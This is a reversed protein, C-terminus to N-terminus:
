ASSSKEFLANFLAQVATSLNGQDQMMDNVFTSLTAPKNVSATLDNQTKLVQIMTQEYATSSDLRASCATRDAVWQKRVQHERYLRLSLAPDYTTTPGQGTAGKLNSTSKSPNSKSSKSASERVAIKEDTLAQLTAIYFNDTALCEATVVTGYGYNVARLTAVAQPFPTAVAELFTAIQPREKSEAWYGTIAQGLADVADAQPQTILKATVLAGALTPLPKPSSDVNAIAGLSKVYDLLASNAKNWDYSVVGVPYKSPDEVSICTERLYTSYASGFFPDASKKVASLAGSSSSAVSAGAAAQQQTTPMPEPTQPYTRVASEKILLERTRLCSADFDAAIAQFSQRAQETTAAYQRVANLDLNQSPACCVLVSCVMLGVSFPIIIPMRCHKRTV